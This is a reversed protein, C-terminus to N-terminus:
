QHQHEHWTVIWGEESVARAHVGPERVSPVLFSLITNRMYNSVWPNHAASAMGDDHEHSELIEVNRYTRLLYGDRDLGISPYLPYSDDDQTHILGFCHGIEHTLTSQEVAPTYYGRNPWHTTTALNIKLYAVGGRFISNTTNKSTLRNSVIAVRLTISIGM